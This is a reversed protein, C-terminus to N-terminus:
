IELAAAVPNINVVLMRIQSGLVIMVDRVNTIYFPLKRSIQSLSRVHILINIPADTSVGSVLSHIVFGTGRFM